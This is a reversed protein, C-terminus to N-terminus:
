PVPQPRPRRHRRAPCAARIIQPSSRRTITSRHSGPVADREVLVASSSRSGRPPSAESYRRSAAHSPVSTTARRSDHSGPLQRLHQEPAPKPLRRRTDAPELPTRTRPSARDHGQPPTRPRRAMVKALLEIQAAFTAPPARRARGAHRRSQGREAAPSRPRRSQLTRVRHLRASAAARLTGVAQGGTIRWGSEHRCPYPHPESPAILSGREGGVRRARRYELGTFAFSSRAPTYSCTRVLASALPRASTSVCVSLTLASCSADSTERCTAPSTRRKNASAGPEDCMSRASSRASRRNPATASTAALCLTSPTSKACSANSGGARRRSATPASAFCRGRGCDGSADDVSNVRLASSGRNDASSAWSISHASRTSAITANM